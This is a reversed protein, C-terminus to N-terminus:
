QLYNQIFADALHCTIYGIIDLGDMWGDIYLKKDAVELM